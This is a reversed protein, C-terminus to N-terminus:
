AHIPKAPATPHMAAAIATFEHCPPISGPVQQYELYKLRVFDNTLLRKTNGFFIHKKGPYVQIKKLFKWIDEESARHDKMLIVALIKMLLGTKPYGRGPHIRGNNPLSLMSFLNYSHRTSDVVKVEVAFIMELHERASKFIQPLEHRYKQDVSMMMQLWTIPQKSNFRNLIFWELKEIPCRPNDSVYDSCHSARFLCEEYKCSSGPDSNVVSGNASLAGASPSKRGPTLPPSCSAAGTPSQVFSSGKEEEPKEGSAAKAEVETAEAKAAPAPTATEPVAAAAAEVEAAAGEATPAVAEQAVEVGQKGRGAQPCKKNAHRKSKHHRPMTFRSPGLSSHSSSPKHQLSSEKIALHHKSHQGRGSGRQSTKQEQIVRSGLECTAGEMKVAHRELAM